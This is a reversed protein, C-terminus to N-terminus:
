RRAWGCRARAASARAVSPASGPAPTEEIVKQNRRQVSCDREGLAVVDGRRRRLDAGRHSARARRVERPVRRRRRLESRALREVATSPRPWSAPKAACRAHRHRRRRRHEQADGPLRHARSGCARRRASSCCSAHRAAAARREGGRDRARTHKLGFSACRSRRRARHLAIGASARRPSSRREREPLRLGSPHGRRRDRRAAELIREARPLERRRPAARDRVAEDAERVHLSHRDAESYVAVSAVGM